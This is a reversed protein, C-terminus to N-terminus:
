KRSPIKQLVFIKILSMCNEKRGKGREKRRKREREKEKQTEATVVM